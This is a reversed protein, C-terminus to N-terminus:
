LMVPLELGLPLDYVMLLSYNWAVIIPIVLWPEGSQVMCIYMYMFLKM